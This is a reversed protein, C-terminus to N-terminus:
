LGQWVSVVHQHLMTWCQQIWRTASPQGGYQVINYSSTSRLKIEILCRRRYRRVNRKNEPTFLTANTQGGHEVNNFARMGVLSVKRTNTDM